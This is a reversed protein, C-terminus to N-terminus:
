AVLLALIELNLDFPHSSNAFNTPRETLNLQETTDLHLGMFWLQWAERDMLLEQLGALCEDM